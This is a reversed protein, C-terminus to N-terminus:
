SQSQPYQGARERNLGGAPGGVLRHLEIQGAVQAALVASHKHLTVIGVGGKAALQSHEVDGIRGPRGPHSAREQRAIRAADIDRALVGVQAIVLASEPIVAQEDDVNGVGGVRDLDAPRWGREPIIPGDVDGAAISVQDVVVDAEGDQVHRVRDLRGLHAPVLAWAPRSVQVDGAAIGVQGVVLAPPALQRPQLSEPYARLTKVKWFGYRVWQRALARLTPRVQYWSRIRSSLLIRGGARRLRINLEYDENVLWAEDFGGLMELTARRWAGLYVTDVWVTSQGTRFAAGGIGFPDTTGIAIANSLWNEGVARQLGGVSAAGTQALLEVCTRVYDPAYITHADMRVIVEGSAERLGVNMAAPIVRRENDVLRVHDHEDAYANVIERSRDTSMGDVVLIELCEDPYDNALISELCRAIFDEENRMPVIVSVKVNGRDPGSATNWVETSRM